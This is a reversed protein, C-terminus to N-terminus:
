VHSGEPPKSFAKQIPPFLRVSYILIAILIAVSLYTLWPLYSGLGISLLRSGSFNGLGEGLGAVFNAIGFYTSMLQGASIRTIVIDVTPMIIMEGIIFILGSFILFYFNTAYYLSSIGIGIFLAGIAFATMSSIRKIIKNTIFTQFVVVLLSNITWILSVAAPNDLIREGTLPLALAFQVYLGWILISMASFAIYAKNRFVQLYSRIPVKDCPQTDCESPVFFWSLTGVLFFIVAAVYFVSSSQNGFVTYVLLGAVGIGMNAAIGRLSFVTTQDGQKSTIEAIAAKTSPANLGGGIGNFLAVVILMPYSTALGFGILALGKIFAGVTIVTRRGFQDALYGGLISGGQYSFSSVALVTGIQLITLGKVVKLLIPFIPLVLYYSLHALLVTVLLIKIPLTLSKFQSFFM